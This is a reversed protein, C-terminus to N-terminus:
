RPSWAPTSTPSSWGCGPWARQKLSRLFGRWFVEDESDGVDLGLVERGGAATVGTAVVVAMSTVQGPGASTSTPRTSSCTRSGPTTCRGPDPVRRSGRGPRRLDAVGRIELHRVRRRARCGSRRRGPYFRRQRLNKRSWTCLAGPGDAAPTRPHNPLVFGEAAEPDLLEVDGAQTALLRTVHATASPSGPTETREYYGAGIRETAETQIVEQMVLRVSERILDVGEGARFAELLETAVSQSLAM